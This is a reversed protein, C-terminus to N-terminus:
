IHLEKKMENLMAIEDNLWKLQYNIEIKLIRLAIEAGEKEPLLAFYHQLPDMVWDQTRCVPPKSLPAM